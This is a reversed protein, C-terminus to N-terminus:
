SFENIENLYMTKDKLIGNKKIILTIISKNKQISLHM